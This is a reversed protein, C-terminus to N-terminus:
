NIYEIKVYSIERCNYILKTARRQVKEIKKIDGKLHPSWYQCGYELHPRVLSNYLSTIVKESKYEFTRSILGLVKNAKKVAASVQTAAKLKNNIMVGLDREMDSEEIKSGNLYYTTRLNQQGFHLVKCKNINFCMKWKSSWEALSDLDAQLAACYQSDDARSMLKTDDAFKSIYSNLNIDIDNINYIIFLTPGLVSGQPVGSIVSSWSSNQGGIVVRQQRDTLWNKIWQYIRGQVGCKHLKILLEKHPVKDFAKQFDLYIIDVSKFEDLNVATRHYFDLLNTVCSKHMRFGHQSERIISNQELHATIRDRVINELLKSIISTLSIPRYNGALHKRGKKFIPTVNACKWSHPVIGEDMSKNFILSLPQVLVDKLALVVRAQIGDPGSSKNPKIRSLAEVIDSENIELEPIVTEDNSIENNKEIPVTDRRHVTFVSTFHDNLAEAIENPDGTISGDSKEISSVSERVVKKSNVYSYFRKPNNKIEKSLNIEYEFKSKKVLKKVVHRQARFDYLTRTTSNNRYKRYLKNKHKTALHLSTNWWSPYKSINEHGPKYLPIFKNQADNIITNFYAVMQEVSSDRFLLDWRIDAIYKQLDVVNAKSFNFRRIVNNLKPNLNYTIHFKVSKHDSFGESVEM